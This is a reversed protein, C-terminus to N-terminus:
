VERADFERRLYQPAQVRWSETVLEALHDPDVANLRLAIKPKPSDSTRFFVQPAMEMLALADIPDALTVGLVPEAAIIARAPELTSPWPYCEWAFLSRRVFWAAGHTMAREESGPLTRALARVDALTAAM